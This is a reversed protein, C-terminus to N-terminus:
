GTTSATLGIGGSLFLFSPSSGTLPRLDTGDILIDGIMNFRDGVNQFQGSVPSRFISNIAQMKKGFIGCLM